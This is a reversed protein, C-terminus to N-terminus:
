MGASQKARGNNNQKILKIQPQSRVVTWVRYRQPQTLGCAGATICARAISRAHGM